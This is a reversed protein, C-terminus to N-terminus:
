QLGVMKEKGFRCSGAGARFGLAAMSARVGDCAVGRGLRRSVSRARWAWAGGDDSWWAVMCACGGEKGLQRCACREIVEVQQQLLVVV